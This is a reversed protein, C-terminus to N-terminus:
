IELDNHGLHIAIVYLEESKSLGKGHRYFYYLVATQFQVTGTHCFQVTGSKSGSHGFNERAGGAGPRHLVGLQVGTSERAGGRPM